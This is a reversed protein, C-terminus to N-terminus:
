LDRLELFSPQGRGAVELPTFRAARTSFAEADMHPALVYFSCRSLGCADPTDTKGMFIMLVVM